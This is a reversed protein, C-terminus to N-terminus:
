HGVEFWAGVEVQFRGVVVVPALVLVLVVVLMMRSCCDCWTKSDEDWLEEWARQWPLKRRLSNVHNTM